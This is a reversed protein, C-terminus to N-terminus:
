NVRGATYPNLGSLKVVGEGNERSPANKNEHSREPARRPHQVVIVRHGGLRNGCGSARVLGSPGSNRRREAIGPKPRVRPTVRVIRDSITSIGSDATAMLAEASDGAWNTAAAKESRAM